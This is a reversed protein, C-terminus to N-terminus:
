GTSATAVGSGTIVLTAHVVSALVLAIVAVALVPYLNFVGLLSFKHMVWGVLQGAMCAALTVGVLVVIPELVAIM